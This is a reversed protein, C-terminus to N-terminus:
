RTDLVPRGRPGARSRPTRASRGASGAPPATRPSGSRISSASATMDRFLASSAPMLGLGIFPDTLNDNGMGRAYFSGTQEWFRHIDTIPARSQPLDRVMVPIPPSGAPPAGEARTRARSRPEVERLEDFGRRIVRLNDEVVRAGKAGFKHELQDRM